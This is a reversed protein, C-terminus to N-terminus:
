VATTPWKDNKLGVQSKIANFGPQFWKDNEPNRSFMNAWTNFLCNYNTKRNLIAM